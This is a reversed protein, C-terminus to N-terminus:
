IKKLRKFRAKHLLFIKKPFKKRSKKRSVKKTNFSCRSFRPMQMYSSAVMEVLKSM